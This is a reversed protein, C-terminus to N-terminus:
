SSECPSGISVLLREELGSDERHTKGSLGAGLEQGEEWRAGARGGDQMVRGTGMPQTQTVSLKM